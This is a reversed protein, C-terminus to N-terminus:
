DAKYLQPQKASVAHESGHMIGVLCLALIVHFVQDCFLQSHPPRNQLAMSESSTGDSANIKM